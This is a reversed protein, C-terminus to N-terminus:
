FLTFEGDYRRADRQFVRDLEVTRAAPVGEAAAAPVPVRVVERGGGAEAYAAATRLRTMEGYLAQTKRHEGRIDGTQRRVAAALGEASERAARGLPANPSLGGAQAPKAASEGVAQWPVTREQGTQDQPAARPTGAGGGLADEWDWRREEEEELQDLSEEM